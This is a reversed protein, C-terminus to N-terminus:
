IELPWLVEKYAENFQNGVAHYNFKEKAASAIKEKDYKDLNNLMNNMADFLKDEKESAILIGNENNIVERIGGVDTSIVPLGSCLAELIVCPLNEYRSFMVLADAMGLYEAM